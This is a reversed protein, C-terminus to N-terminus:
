ILEIEQDLDDVLMNNDISSKMRIGKYKNGVLTFKKKLYIKQKKPPCKDKEDPYNLDLWRKIESLLEKRPLYSTEDTEIKDKIFEQLIDQKEQYLKTYEKVEEPEKLAQGNM